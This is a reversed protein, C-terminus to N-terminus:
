RKVERLDDVSKIGPITGIFRALCLLNMFLGTIAEINAVSLVDKGASDPLGTPSDLNTFLSMSQLIVSITSIGSQTGDMICYIISFALVYEIMNLILLIIMRTVSKIAYEKQEDAKTTPGQEDRLRSFARLNKYKEDYHKHMPDFFLVNVHYVFIALPRLIAFAIALYCLAKHSRVLNMNMLIVSSVILM